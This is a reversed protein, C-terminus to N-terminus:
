SVVQQRANIKYNLLSLRMADFLDDNTSREKDIKENIVYCSRLSDYVNRQQEHIVLLGKDVLEKMNYMMEKSKVNFPIPCVVPNGSFMKKEMEKKDYKGYNPNEGIAM